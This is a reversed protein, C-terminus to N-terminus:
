KSEQRKDKRIEREREREVRVWFKLFICEQVGVLTHELTPSRTNYLVRKHTSHELPHLTAHTTGKM